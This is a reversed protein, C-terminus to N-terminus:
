GRRDIWDAYMEKVRTEASWCRSRRLSKARGVRLDAEGVVCAHGWNFANNRRMYEPDLNRLTGANAYWYPLPVKGTMMARQVPEPAHTHGSVFLGMYDGLLVAQDRGGNRGTLWGHGFTCQGLRFVGRRACFDYSSGLRWKLANANVQEGTSDFQPRRWDCLDRHKPNIRGADLINFCHNGMLRVLDCSPGAAKALRAKIADDARYEDLLSYAAESPWRSAADAELDDGLSILVDPKHEEIQACVWDIAEDDHEPAHVCSFALWRVVGQRKRAARKTRTKTM